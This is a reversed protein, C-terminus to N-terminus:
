ISITALTSSSAGSGHTAASHSELRQCKPAPSGIVLRLEAVVSISPCDYPVYQDHSESSILSCRSRNTCGVIETNKSVMLLHMSERWVATLRRTIWPSAEGMTVVSFKILDCVLIGIGQRVNFM